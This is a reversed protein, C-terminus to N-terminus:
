SVDHERFVEVATAVAITSIEKSVWRSLRISSESLKLFSPAPRRFIRSSMEVSGYFKKKERVM